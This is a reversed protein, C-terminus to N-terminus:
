ICGLLTILELLIILEERASSFGPCFGNIQLVAERFPRDESHDAIDQRMDKWQFSPLYSTNFQPVIFM